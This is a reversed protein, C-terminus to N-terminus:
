KISERKKYSRAIKLLKKTVPVGYGNDPILFKNNEKSFKLSTIDEVDVWKEIKVPAECWQYYEINKFVDGKFTEIVKANVKLVVYGITGNDAKIQEYIEAKEIKMWATYDTNILNSRLMDDYEASLDNSKNCNIDCYALIILLLCTFARM